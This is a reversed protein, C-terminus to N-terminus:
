FSKLKKMEEDIEIPTLYRQSMKQQKKSFKKLFFQSTKTKTENSWAKLENGLGAKICRIDTEKESKKIGNPLAQNFIFKILGKFNLSHFLSLHSLEHAIVGNKSSDSLQDFQFFKFKNNVSTNINIFYNRKKPSKFISLFSYSASMASGHNRFRIEIKANELNTYFPKAYNYAKQAQQKINQSTCHKTYFVLLLILIYYKM